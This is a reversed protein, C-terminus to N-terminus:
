IKVEINKFDIIYCEEIYGYNNFLKNIFLMCFKFNIGLIYGFYNCVYLNYFLYFVIIVNNKKFLSKIIKWM